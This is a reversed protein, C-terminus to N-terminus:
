ELHCRTLYAYAVFCFPFAAIFPSTRPHTGLCEVPPLNFDMRQLIPVSKIGILPGIRVIRSQIFAHFRLKFSTGFLIYDNCKVEEEKLTQM